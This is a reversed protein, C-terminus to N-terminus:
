LRFDGLQPGVAEVGRPDDGVHGVVRRHLVQGAVRQRAVARDVHDAVVGARAGDGLAVHPLVVQGVPPPPDVDVHDADNMPDLGEDRQQQRLVVTM